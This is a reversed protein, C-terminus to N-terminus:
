SASPPPSPLEKSTAIRLIKLPHGCFPCFKMDMQPIWAKKPHCGSEVINQEGTHKYFCPESTM